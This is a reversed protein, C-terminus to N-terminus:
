YLLICIYFMFVSLMIVWSHLIEMMKEKEISEMHFLEDLNNKFMMIKKLHENNNDIYYFFKDYVKSKVTNLTDHIALDHSLSSTSSDDLTDIMQQHVEDMSALKNFSLNKMNKDLKIINLETQEINYEVIPVEPIDRDWIGVNNFLFNDILEHSQLINYANYSKKLQKITSTNTNNNRINDDIEIAITTTSTTTTSPVDVDNEITTSFLSSLFDNFIEEIYLSILEPTITHRTGLIFLIDSYCMFYYMVGDVAILGIDLHKFTDGL